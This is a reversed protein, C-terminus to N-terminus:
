RAIPCMLYLSVVVVLCLTLTPISDGIGSDFAKNHRHFCRGTTAKERTWGCLGCYCFCEGGCGDITSDVVSGPSHQVTCLM